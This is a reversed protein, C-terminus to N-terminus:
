DFSVPHAAPRPSPYKAGPLLDPASTPSDSPVSLPSSSHGPFKVVLFLQSRCVLRHPTHLRFHTDVKLRTAGFRLSQYLRQHAATGKHLVHFDNVHHGHSRGRIHSWLHCPVEPMVCHKDAAIHALGDVFAPGVVRRDVQTFNFFKELAAGHRDINGQQFERRRVRVAEAAETDTHVRRECGRFTSAVHNRLDIILHRAGESVTKNMYTLKVGNHLGGPGQAGHL